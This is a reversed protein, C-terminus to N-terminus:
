NRGIPGPKPHSPNIHLRSMNFQRAALRKRSYRKSWYRRARPKLRAYTRGAAPRTRTSIAPNPKLANNTKLINEPENTRKKDSQEFTEPKEPAPSDPKPENPEPPPVERIPLVEAQSMAGPRPRSPAPSEGRDRRIELFRRHARLYQRDCLSDYRIILDVSHSEGLSRFAMSGRTPIDEARATAEAEKRIQQDMASKEMGWLRLQRWRAVAMKQVLTYEISTEPQLEEEVEALIELFRDSRETELVVTEALLGHKISNRSSNRKGEATAPGRSRAGNARSAQIQRETRM